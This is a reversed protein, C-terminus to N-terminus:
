SLLTPVTSFPKAFECLCAARLANAVSPAYDGYLYASGASDGGGAYGLCLAGRLGSTAAPNYYGDAYGTSSTGAVELPFMVLNELNLKSIYKWEAATYIPTRGMLVKDGVATLDFTTGDIENKIYVSQSKDSNCQMLVDECMCYLYKYDNKLGFFSPIGSLTKTTGNDNISASFTGLFDGREVGEDLNIYPYYHWHNNWDTVTGVGQGTGGQHLGDSTLTGNFAAQINRNHFVIRKIAATIFFMVRSNALWMNGNKRAATAFAAIAVNTAPKCLQSNFQGDLSADNNGGRYQASYNVFSVLNGNTRDLTAYGACSRSGPPIIYNLHGPIPKVDIAEYLYTEDEWNAYYLTVGWGWQYHGMTGDLAAAAGNAFLNHNSASLKRRSHDNQVLYGGLGLLDALREIKAISGCPEGVTTASDKRWRCGAWQTSNVKGVSIMGIKNGSVSYGLLLDNDDVSQLPEINKVEKFDLDAM